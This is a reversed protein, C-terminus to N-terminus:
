SEKRIDLVFTLFSHRFRVQYDDLLGGLPIRNIRAFSRCTRSIKRSSLAPALPHGTKRGTKRGIEIPDCRELEDASAAFLEPLSLPVTDGHQAAPVFAAGSDIAHDCRTRGAPMALWGTALGGVFVAVGSLCALFVRVVM